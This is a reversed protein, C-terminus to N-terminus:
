KSELCYLHKEGRIFLQKGVAAPTADVPERLKNVAIVDLTDGAKLVVTTGMRDILYVRGKAHIPSAYYSTADSLRQRDIIPKGTKADLVTLMATNGETFYLRDGVVAPSPVYPTGRSHQWKMDGPRLTGKANLPIAFSISIKYGGMAILSDQVQVISPIANITTGPTSWLLSGDRLDYARIHNTGNMVVMKQGAAETILPTNWSSKEDRAVKWQTQGNMVNLCYLTSDAEQDMNLILHEGHVVPTVAEGWGLRTHLRGLDRSWLQKGAFDYCYIGFSGFSAYIREGDTTPSGAAYSHSSHHGEHPVKEAAVREWLIKGTNRDFCHVQFKYFHRPPETKTEFRPDIKPLEDAKAERDTKVATLVFVHDGWVVPSSSGKGPLPAKWRINKGDADWETPPDATPSSGNADPGRWHHWNSQKEKSFDVALLPAALVFVAALVCTRKMLAGGYTSSIHFGIRNRALIIGSIM